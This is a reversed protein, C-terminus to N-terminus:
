YDVPTVSLHTNYTYNLITPREGGLFSNPEQGNWTLNKTSMTAMPCAKLWTSKNERDTDECLDYMVMRVVTM